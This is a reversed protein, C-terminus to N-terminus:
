PCSHTKRAGYAEDEDVELNANEIENLQFKLLDLKQAMMQEDESLQRLKQKLQMAKKYLTEYESLARELEEGCYSDLISRNYCCKTNM